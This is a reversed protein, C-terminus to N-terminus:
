ILKRYIKFINDLASKKIRFASGHDHPRGDPYRGIRIDYYLNKLFKEFVGNKIIYAEQYHFEEKGRRSKKSDALILIIGKNIKQEFIKKLGNKNYSFVYERNKLIVLRDKENLLEFGQKNIHGATITQHLVKLGNKKRPYGLKELLGTNLEDDPKKTFLTILSQSELRQTKLEFLGLDPLSINNESLGLLQELTHGIGTDHWRLSKVFGRNKIEKLKKKLQNLNIAM